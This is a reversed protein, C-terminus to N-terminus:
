KLNQEKFRKKKSFLKNKYFKKYINAVHSTFVVMDIKKAKFLIIKRNKM